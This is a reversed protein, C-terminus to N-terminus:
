PTSFGVQGNEAKMTSDASLIREGSVEAYFQMPYESGASPVTLDIEMVLTGKGDSVVLPENITVGPPAVEFGANYTGDAMGFVDVAFTVAVINPM